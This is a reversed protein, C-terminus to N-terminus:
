LEKKIDDILRNIKEIKDEQIDEIDDNLHHNDITLLDLKKNIQILINLIDNIKWYWLKVQRILLWFIVCFIGGLIVLQGINQINGYKELITLANM